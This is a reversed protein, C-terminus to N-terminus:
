TIIEAKVDEIVIGPYKGRMTEVATQLAPRAAMKSTGFELYHAYEIESGEKVGSGVEVEDGVEQWGVSEKYAGTDVIKMDDINKVYERELEGGARKRAKRAGAKIQKDLAEINRVVAGIGRIMDTM